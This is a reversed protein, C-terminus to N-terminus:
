DSEIADEKSVVDVTHSPYEAQMGRTSPGPILNAEDIAKSFILWARYIPRLKFTVWVGVFPIFGLVFVMMIVPLMSWIPHRQFCRFHLTRFAFRMSLGFVVLNGIIPICQIQAIKTAQPCVSDLTACLPLMHDDYHRAMESLEVFCRHEDDLMTRTPLFDRPNVTSNSAAM